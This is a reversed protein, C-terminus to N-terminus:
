RFLLVAVVAVVVIALAGGAVAFALARRKHRAAAARRLGAREDAVSTAVRRPAPAAALSPPSVAMKPAIDVSPLLVTDRPEGADNFAPLAAARVALAAAVAAAEEAAITEDALAADGAPPAAASRAAAEARWTRVRSLEPQALSEVLAALTRQAAPAGGRKKLLPALADRREGADAARQAPDRALLPTLWAAVDPDLTSLKAPTYDVRAVHSWIDRPALDGWYPELALLEYFVVGASFLDARADVKEARAQEPSMYGLKGMVIDQATKARKLSSLALGFDIVRAIGRANCMINQPSIDRHVIGLPAGSVPHQAGHAFALADLACAAIWLATAVDLPRKAEACRALLTLLDVGEVLEIAMYRVGGVRGADLVRSIGPHALLLAIRTEDGFRKVAEADDAVDARMTKLVCVDPAGPIAAGPRALWVEGMGGRGLPELLVFPGFPGPSLAM